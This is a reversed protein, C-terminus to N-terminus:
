GVIVNAKKKKFFLGLCVFKFKLDTIFIQVEIVDQRNSKKCRNFITLIVVNIM